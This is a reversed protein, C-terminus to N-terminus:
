IFSRRKRNFARQDKLWQRYGQISGIKEGYYDPVPNSYSNVSPDVRFRKIRSYFEKEKIAFSEKHKWHRLNWMASGVVPGLLWGLAACAATGLGLTILPDLGLMQAITADLNHMSLRQVGGMTFGVSGIISTILSFRRRSRRLRFFSNWDLQVNQSPSSGAQTSAERLSSPATRLATAPILASTTRTAQASCPTTSSALPQIKFHSQSARTTSAHRKQQFRQYKCQQHVAPLSPSPNPTNASSSFVFPSLGCSIGRSGLIASRLPTNMVTLHM